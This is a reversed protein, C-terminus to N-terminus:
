RLQRLHAGRFPEFRERRRGRVAVGSAGGAAPDIVDPVAARVPHNGVREQTGAWSSMTSPASLSSRQSRAFAEFLLIMTDGDIQKVRM